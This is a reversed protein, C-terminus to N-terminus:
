QDEQQGQPTVQLALASPLDKVFSASVSVSSETGGASKQLAGKGYARALPEM